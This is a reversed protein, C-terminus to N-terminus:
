PAPGQPNNKDGPNEPKLPPPRSIDSGSEKFANHKKRIAEIRQDLEALADIQGGIVALARKWLQTDATDLGFGALATDFNIGGGAALMETYKQVFAGQDAAKAYLDYLLYGGLSGLARASSDFPAHIFSPADMWFAGAGEVGLNVAPGFLEKQTELWLHALREPPLEGRSKREQYLRQEFIFLASPRLVNELMAEVQRALMNRRAILDGEAALQAHFVLM